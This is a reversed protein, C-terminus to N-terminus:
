RSRSASSWAGGSAQTPSSPLPGRVHHDGHRRDAPRLHHLQARGGLRHRQHLFLNRRGNRLVYDMSAALAVAYGGTDRQVGKPNQRHHRQHLAIYSPSRQVGAMRLPVRTCTPAARPRPTTSTAGPWRNPSPWAPEGDAGAPMTPWSPHSRRAPAQPARGQRRAAPTPASSRRTPACGRHAIALRSAPLAALCWWHIAGIRACALM